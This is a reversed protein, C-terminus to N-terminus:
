KKKIVFIFLRQQIVIKGEQFERLRPIPTESEKIQILNEIITVKDFDVGQAKLSVLIEEPEAKLTNIRVYTSPNILVKLLM